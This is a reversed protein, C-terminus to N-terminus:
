LIVMKNNVRARIRARVAVRVRFRGRRLSVREKTINAKIVRVQGVKVKKAL